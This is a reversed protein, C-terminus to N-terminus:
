VNLAHGSRLTHYLKKLIPLLLRCSDEDRAWIYFVCGSDHLFCRAEAVAGAQEMKIEYLDPFTDALPRIKDLELQRLEPDYVLVDVFVQVFGPTTRIFRVHFIKDDVDVCLRADVNGSVLQAIRRLYRSIAARPVRFRHTPFINM